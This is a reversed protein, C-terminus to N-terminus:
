EIRRVYVYMGEQGDNKQENRIQRGALWPTDIAGSGILHLTSMASAEYSASQIRLAIATDATWMKYTMAIQKPQSSFMRISCVVREHQPPFVIVAEDM